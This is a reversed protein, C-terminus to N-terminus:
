ADGVGAGGGGGGLWEAVHAAVARLHEERVDEVSFSGTASDVLALRLPPRGSRLLELLALYHLTWRARDRPGDVTLGIACLSTAAGASRGTGLLLDFVGALVVRGGALPIAVRDDTRPMCGPSFRPVLLALHAAHGRVSRALAERAGREMSEVHRVLEAAGGDARVADLADRLPDGIVGVTVLQRFLARVLRAVVRAEVSTVSGPAGTGGPAGLLRRPSASLPPADDGRAVVGAFAADELWARLGGAMGDFRPPVGTRVRLQALLAPGAAGEPRGRTPQVRIPDPAVLVM